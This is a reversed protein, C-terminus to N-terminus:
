EKAGVSRHNPYHWTYAKPRTIPIGGSIKHNQPNSPEGIQPLARVVPIAPMINKMTSHHMLTSDDGPRLHNSIRRASSTLFPIARVRAPRKQPTITVSRGHPTEAQRPRARPKISVDIKCRTCLTTSENTEEASFSSMSEVIAPGVTDQPPANSFLDIKLRPQSGKKPVQRASIFEIKGKGKDRPLNADVMGVTTTPFPDTDVGMRKEPFKLMGDDIWSQIADRFVVYNHTAHKSLSHYKCYIRGKLEEAKPINHGPRLKIIKALLLQDFIPDAKTIDFTYIKSTKIAIEESTPRVKIDKPNVHTLTKCIYPKDIVIEAADISACEEPEASAYSVTPNKYITGRSPSKSVKEERLM